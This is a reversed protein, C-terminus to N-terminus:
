VSRPPPSSSSLSPFHSTLPLYPSETAIEADISADNNNENTRTVPWDYTFFELSLLAAM